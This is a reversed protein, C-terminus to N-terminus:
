RAQEGNWVNKSKALTLTEMALRRANVPGGRMKRLVKFRDYRHITTLPSTVKCQQM